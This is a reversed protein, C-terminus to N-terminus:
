QRMMKAIKRDGNVKRMLEKANDSEAVADFWAFPLPDDGTAAAVGHSVSVAGRFRQRIM